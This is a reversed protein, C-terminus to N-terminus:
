QRRQQQQKHIFKTPSSFPFGVLPNRALTKLLAFLAIYCSFRATAIDHLSDNRLYEMLVKGLVSQMLLGQCAIDFLVGSPDTFGAESYENLANEVSNLEVEIAQDRQSGVKSAQDSWKENGDLQGPAGGFGTGKTWASQQQVRYAANLPQPLLHKPPQKSADAKTAKHLRLLAKKLEGLSARKSGPASHGAGLVDELQGELAMSFRCYEESSVLNRFDRWSVDRGCGRVPCPWIQDFDHRGLHIIRRLHGVLCNVGGKHNCNDLM